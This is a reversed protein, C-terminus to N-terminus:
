VGRVQPAMAALMAIEAKEEEADYTVIQNWYHPLLPHTAPFAQTEGTEHQRILSALTNLEFVDERLNTSAVLTDESVMESETLMGRCRHCPQCTPSEVGSVSDTYPPGAVAIALVRDFGRERISTLARKEACNWEAGQYPTFNGGFYTGIRGGQTDQALMAAGVNFGRYSHAIRDVAQRSLDLLKCLSQVVLFSTAIQVPYNRTDLWGEIFAPRDGPQLYHREAMLINYVLHLSLAIIPALYNVRKL